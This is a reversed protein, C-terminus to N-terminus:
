VYGLDLMKAFVANAIVTNGAASLHVADSRMSLPHIGNGVDARDAASGDHNAMLLATANISNHPFESAIWAEHQLLWERQLEGRKAYSNGLPTLIIVRGSRCMSVIRLTEAKVLEADGYNNNSGAWVIWVGGHEVSDAEITFEFDTADDPTPTGGLATFSYSGKWGAKLLAWGTGTYTDQTGGAAMLLEVTDTSGGVLQIYYNRDPRWGTPINVFPTKPWGQITQLFCGTNEELLHDATKAYAKRISVNDFYIVAGTYTSANSFGISVVSGGAGIYARSHIRVWSGITTTSYTTESELHASGTGDFGIQVSPVGGAAIYVWAEIDYICDATVTKYVGHFGTNSDLTLRASYQGVGDCSGVTSSQALTGNSVSITMLATENGSNVVESTNAVEEYLVAQNSGPCRAYFTRETLTAAYEGRNHLIFRKPHPCGQRRLALQYDTSSDDDSVPPLYPRVHVINDGDALSDVGRVPGDYVGAQMRQRAMTATDGGVGRHKVVWGAHITRLLTQLEPTYTNYSLSDGVTYVTRPNPASMRGDGICAFRYTSSSGSVFFLSWSTLDAGLKYFTDSDACYVLMGARRRSAPLADREAVTAVTALGGHVHISDVAPYTSSQPNLKGYINPM